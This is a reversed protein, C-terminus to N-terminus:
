SPGNNKPVVGNGAAKQQEIKVKLWALKKPDTIVRIEPYKQHQKRRM